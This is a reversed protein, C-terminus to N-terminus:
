CLLSKKQLYLRRMPQTFSRSVDDPCAIGSPHLGQIISFKGLALETDPSESEVPVIWTWHDVIAKRGSSTDLRLIKSPPPVPGCPHFGFAQGFCVSLPSRQMVPTGQATTWVVLCFFAMFGSFIVWRWHRAPIPTKGVPVFRCQNEVSQGWNISIM